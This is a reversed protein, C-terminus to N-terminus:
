GLPLLLPSALRGEERAKRDKKKKQSGRGTDSIKGLGEGPTFSTRCGPATGPPTSPAAQLWLEATGPAANKNANM